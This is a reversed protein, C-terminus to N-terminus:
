PYLIAITLDVDNLVYSKKINIKLVMIKFSLEFRLVWVFPCSSFLMVPLGEICM